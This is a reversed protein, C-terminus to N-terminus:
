PRIGAVLVHRYRILALSIGFWLNLKGVLDINKGRFDM